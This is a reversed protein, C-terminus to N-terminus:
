KEYRLFIMVNSSSSSTHYARIKYLYADNSIMFTIQVGNQKRSFFFIPNIAVIELHFKYPIDIKRSGICCAFHFILVVLRKVVIRLPLTPKM